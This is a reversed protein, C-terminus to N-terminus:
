CYSRVSLSIDMRMIDKQTEELFDYDINNLTMVHKVDSDANANHKNRLEVFKDVYETYKSNHVFFSILYTPIRNYNLLQADDFSDIVKETQLLIFVTPINQFQTNLFDLRDIKSSFIREKDIDYKNDIEGNFRIDQLITKLFDIQKDILTM